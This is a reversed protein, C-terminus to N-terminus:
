FIKLLDMYRAELEFDLEKMLQDSFENALEVFNYRKAEDLYKQMKEALWKIIKLDVKIRDVIGERKVKLAVLKGNKLRARHVQAISAAAVPQEELYEFITNHSCSLEKEVTNKVINFDQPAVKDNLKKLEIM